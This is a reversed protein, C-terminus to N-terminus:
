GWFIRKLIFGIEGVAIFHFLSYNVHIKVAVSYENLFIRM